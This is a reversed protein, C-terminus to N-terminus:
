AAKEPFLIGTLSIEDMALLEPYTKGSRKVAALVSSVTNRSVSLAAAIRRQSNGDALLQLIQNTKSMINDERLIFKPKHWLKM